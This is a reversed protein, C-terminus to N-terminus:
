FRIEPKLTAPTYNDSIGWKKGRAMLELRGAIYGILSASEPLDTAIRVIRFAVLDGVEPYGPAGPLTCGWVERVGGAGALHLLYWHEGEAGRRGEEMVLAPVRAEVNLAYGLMCAHAFAAPPDPFMQVAEEKKRFWDFM